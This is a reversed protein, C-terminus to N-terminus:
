AAVAKLRLSYCLNSHVRLTIIGSDNRYASGCNGTFDCDLMNMQGEIFNDDVCVDCEFGAPMMRPEFVPRRIRAAMWPGGRTDYRGDGDHEIYHDCRAEMKGAEIQKKLWDRRVTKMSQNNCEISYRALPAAFFFPFM